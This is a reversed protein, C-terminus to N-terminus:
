KPIDTVFKVGGTIHKYRSVKESVFKVVDEETLIDNARDVYARVLEAMRTDPIGIVAADKILPHSLLLAELEAPAVQLGKVKILEKLRDVIYLRGDEDVYGIDGTHLGGDKDIAEATAEPRNLYGMMVTPSRVWVEGREGIGVEKGTVMKFHAKGVGNYPDKVNLVPLHSGTTCEAMDYGQVLYKVNRHQSLFEMCLDKGSPAAGRMVVEVSSCDFEKVVPNKTLFLLIPPVTTLIRPRYKAISSLFIQPDFRNLVVSTSGACLSINLLGFGYMHYFPLYILSKENYWSHNKPGIVNFVERNFHDIFLDVSTGIARHSLMVGKPSGTTGSSYPLAVMSGPDVDIIDYDPPCSIVESWEIVNSPLSSSDSSRNSLCIITKIRGSTKAAKMVKELHNEDTLVISCCSDVFQRELEYDTFLASAGSIAGGVAMAGIGFVIWEICNPLVLCAMDGDNFGRVRLFSRVSHVQTYLEHFTLSRSPDEATIIAKKTPHITGHHYIARLLKKHLSQNSVPVLPFPSKYVMALVVKAKKWGFLSLFGERYDRILCGIVIADWGPFLSILLPFFDFMGFDPINFFPLYLVCTYPLGVLVLPVFTQVCAIVLMQLQFSKYTYSISDARSLSRYTLGGLSTAAGFNGVMIFLAAILVPLSAGNNISGHRWHDMVLWGDDITENFMEGFKEKLIALGPDDPPPSLAAAIFYWAIGGLIPYAAFVIISKPKSFLEIKTPNTVTWYRYLFHINLLSFPVTFCGFFSASLHPHAIEHFISLFIDYLSFIALLNKYTGLEKRSFRKILFLLISNFLLGALFNDFGIKPPILSYLLYSAFAPITSFVLPIAIKSFLRLVALNDKIQYCKSVSYTNMVPKMKIKKLAKLNHQYCSTFAVSGVLIWICFYVSTTLDSIVECALMFGEAYAIIHVVIEQAFFFTSVNNNDFLIVMYSIFVEKQICSYVLYWTVVEYRM